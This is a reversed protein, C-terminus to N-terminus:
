LVTYGGALLATVSQSWNAGYNDGNYGMSEIKYVGNLHPATSSVLSCLGGIKLTPNLLTDFTIKSQERTPTNLLGSAANVVPIFSSVVEGAKVIYLREDDIYWTEDDGILEDILRASPGVLIRPRTIPSLATIKGRATNPLDGLIATVAQDKGKVTKNTYGALFDHGGDLCELETVMDAGERSNSGRHVTGKFLLKLSGEYGVRFSIGIRKLQAPDRADADKVLALRNSEKLNYIRVTLKNLGGSVSKNASFSVRMPPMVSVTSRESVQVILEFDRNFRSPTAM